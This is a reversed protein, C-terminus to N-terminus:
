LAKPRAVDIIQDKHREGHTDTDMELIYRTPAVTVILTNGPQQNYHPLRASSCSTVSLEVEDNHPEIFTPQPFDNLNAPVQTAM